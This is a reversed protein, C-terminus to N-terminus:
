GAKKGFKTMYKQLRPDTAQNERTMADDMEDMISLLLNAWLPLGDARAYVNVSGFLARCTNPGLVGDIESRMETDMDRALQFLALPDTESTIRQHYAGDKKDLATFAEYLKQAFTPDTPNFRVTCLVDGNEDTLDYSKLGTSINLNM